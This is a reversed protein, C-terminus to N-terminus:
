SPTETHQSVALHSTTNGGSCLVDPWVQGPQLLKELLQASIIWRTLAFLIFVEWFAETLHSCPDSHSDSADAGQVHLGSPTLHQNRVTFMFFM